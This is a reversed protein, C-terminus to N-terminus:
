KVYSEWIGRNLLKVKLLLDSIRSGDEKTRVYHDILWFYMNILRPILIKSDNKPDKLENERAYIEQRLKGFEQSRLERKINFVGFIVGYVPIWEVLQSGSYGKEKVQTILCRIMESELFDLDIKQPDIFFAERFLVKANREEGCLAFCDAMEALIESSQPVQRAATTLYQLATEYQGLKKCCLGQKRCIEAKQVPNSENELSSYCDLAKSFVGKQISFLPREFVNKQRALESHFSKWRSILSEGHEFYGLNSASVTKLYDSWWACCWVAFSVEKNGLNYELTEELIFKAKEPNGEELLTYAQSLGEESQISM